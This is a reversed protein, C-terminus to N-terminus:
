HAAAPAGMATAAGDALEGVQAAPVVTSRESAVDSLALSGDALRSAVAVVEGDKVVNWRDDGTPVLDFTEEGKVIHVTGDPDVRTVPNSGSWFEVTNFILGDGLLCITYAQVVALGFFVLSNIWKDSITGNWAHLKKTLAFPGYCGVQLGTAGLALVLALRTVSRPLTNM